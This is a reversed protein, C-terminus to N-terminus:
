LSGGFCLSGWFSVGLVTFGVTFVYFVSGFWLSLLTFPHFPGLVFFLFFGSGLGLLAGGLLVSSVLFGSGRAPAALGHSFSERCRTVM